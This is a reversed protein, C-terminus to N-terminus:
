DARLAVAPDVQAARRAPLWGALLAVVGLVFIAGLYALPDWPAVGYLLSGLVRAFALAGLAGVALGAITLRLAGRVVLAEVQSPRAGLALRVGIENTRRAVVYSILGYLGIAALLLATVGAVALLTMTFTLRSMSRAVVTEMEVANALPVTKDVENVARRLAGLYGAPSGRSTRMVLTTGSGYWRGTQPIPVVPYYIAIAPEDDLTAPHVDGVVGVVHYFPPKTRGNPGVGKGIPDEGPWFRGAFAKSVIVAGAAPSDNDNPEFDRGALIPIGMAAFYGPATVEQGACTTLNADKLRQYVRVDEFGQVTCGYDGGFPVAESFGVSTVGPIARARAAIEAYLRWRKILSDGRVDPPYVEVALVGRADIGPNVTSLRHFSELLLGASVVLVLALAVQSVVLTSRLRQREVGATGSRGGDGLAGLSSPRRAGLVPVLALVLAVALALLLAFLFVGGDLRLDELRPLSAPALAVLWRVSLYGLALALVSGTVSLALGERFADAAIDRWGAGLAARIAFERRRAEFRVLFLNVVNACAIILVLAVAGFLIWLNRAADGVVYEKLPSVRTHFGYRTIFQESYASPFAAPLERTLHDLEAQATAVTAGPALRAIGPNVHNNAFPGAPDLRWAMWVDTTMRVAQGRDPPLDTGPALVGIVQMPEDSLRITQGVIGEDGGFQRRWFDHSLVIVPAAGPRDDNRDILRGRSARAGLLDFMSATIAVVLVRQPESGPASSSFTGGGRTFLGMSALTKAHQSFYFYQATSLEWEDGAKVGPVPNKLRVLREPQPYDLPDLVVREILTYIATTAGMGLGLTLVAAVTFARNRALSRLTPRIGGFLPSM